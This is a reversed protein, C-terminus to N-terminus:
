NFGLPARPQWDKRQPPKAPEPFLLPAVSLAYINLGNSRQAYKRLCSEHEVDTRKASVSWVENQSSLAGLSVWEGHARLGIGVNCHALSSMTHDSRYTVGPLSGGPCERSPRPLAWCSAGPLVELRGGPLGSRRGLVKGAGPHHKSPTRSQGPPITPM